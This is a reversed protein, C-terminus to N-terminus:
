RERAKQRCRMNRYGVFGREYDSDLVFDLDTLKALSMGPKQKKGRHNPQSVREATLGNLGLRTTM